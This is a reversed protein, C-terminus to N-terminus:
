TRGPRGNVVDAAQAMQAVFTLSVAAVAAVIINKRNCLTFTKM